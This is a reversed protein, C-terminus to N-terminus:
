EGTAIRVDRTIRNGIRDVEVPTTCNFDFTTTMPNEMDEYHMEVVVKVRNPTPPIQTM